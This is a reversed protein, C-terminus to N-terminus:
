EHHNNEVWRIVDILEENIDTAIEVDLGYHRFPMPKQHILGDNTVFWYEWKPPEPIDEDTM